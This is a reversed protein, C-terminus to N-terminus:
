GSSATMWLLRQLHWLGLGIADLINNDIGNPNKKTVKCRPIVAWEEDKISEVIFEAAFTHKPGTGKWTRPQIKIIQSGRRRYYNAIEGALWALDVISNPDAESRSYPYIRPSEIILVNPAFPLDTNLLSEGKWALADRLVRDEFYAFGTTNGPDIALCNAAM